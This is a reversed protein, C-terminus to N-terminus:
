NLSRKVTPMSWGEKLNPSVKQVVQDLLSLLSASSLDQVYNLYRFVAVLSCITAAYSIVSECNHTQVPPFNALTNLYAIVVAQPQGFKRERSKLADKYMTGRYAFEAIATKAKGTVLTKLHTLKM